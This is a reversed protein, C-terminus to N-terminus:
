KFFIKSSVLSFLNREGYTAPKGSLPDFSNLERVTQNYTKNAESSTRLNTFMLPKGFHQLHNSQFIAASLSGSGSALDVSQMLNNSNTLNSNQLQPLLINGPCKQQMLRKDHFFDNQSLNLQLAALNSESIAGVSPVSGQVCFAIEGHSGIVPVLPIKEGASVFSEVGVANSNLKEELIPM